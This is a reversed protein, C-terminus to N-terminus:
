KERTDLCNGSDDEDRNRMVFRSVLLYGAGLAVLAFIMEHALSQNIGFYERLIQRLGVLELNAVLVMLIAVLVWIAWRAWNGFRHRAKPAALMRFRVLGYLMCALLLGAFVDILWSM